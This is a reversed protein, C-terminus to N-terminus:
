RAFVHNGIRRVVPRSYIWPTQVGAPNYFYLSDYSPDGGAIAEQAAKYATEDPTYDIQGNMVPEFQWKQYIVGAITNPFQANEVRNLVVAAVAVQGEYIEGRAEGYVLHALLDIDRRSYDGRSTVPSVRPISRRMENKTKSGVVGDVKLDHIQQYKKVAQYTEQGFKGDILNINYKLDKLVKQLAAIDAGQMGLVLKRDNYIEQYDVFGFVGDVNLHHNGEFQMVGQYTQNGYIGDITGVQYKRQQLIYQLQSVDSGMMGKQLTRSGLVAGQAQAYPIFLIWVFVFMIVALWSQIKSIKKM